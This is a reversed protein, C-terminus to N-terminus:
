NYMNAPTIQIFTASCPGSTKTHQVFCDGDDTKEWNKSDGAPSFRLLNLDYILGYAIILWWGMELMTKMGIHLGRAPSWYVQMSFLMMIWCAIFLSLFKGSLNLSCIRGVAVAASYVRLNTITDIPILCPFSNNVSRCLRTSLNSWRRRDYKTQGM